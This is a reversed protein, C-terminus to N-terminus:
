IEKEQIEIREYLLAELLIYYNITDGIKESIYEKSIDLYEDEKINDVTDILDLISVVHKAQMGLLASEPTIELIEGAKKFNHLRDEKEESYEDGKESLTKLINAIRMAVIEEFDKAKM